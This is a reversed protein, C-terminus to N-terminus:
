RHPGHPQTASPGIEPGLDPELCPLHLHSLIHAPSLPRPLSLSLSSLSLSLSLSLRATNDNSSGCVLECDDTFSVSMVSQASGRLKHQVKGSAYDWIKVTKDGSGTAYMTGNIAFAVTNIESDHGLFNRSAQKPVGGVVAM